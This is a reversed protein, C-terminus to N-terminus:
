RVGPGGSLRGRGLGVLHGGLPHTFAVPGAPTVVPVLADLPAEHASQDVCFYGMGREALQREIGPAYACEPLWFGAAIASDGAIPAFGVTSRCAAGAVTALLPMLAHTAGSTILEVRGERAPAAFLDLLRGDLAEIQALAARYRQAEAACAPALEPDMERADADASGVRFERVFAALRDVVGPAELQDALM